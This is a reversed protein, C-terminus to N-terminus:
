ETDGMLQRLRGTLAVLEQGDEPSSDAFGLDIEQLAVTAKLAVEHGENTLTM